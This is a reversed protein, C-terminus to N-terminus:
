CIYNGLSIKVWPDCYYGYLSEMTLNKMDVLSVCGDVEVKDSGILGGYYHPFKGQPFLFNILDKAKDYSILGKRLEGLIQNNLEDYRWQIDNIHTRSIDLLLPNLM